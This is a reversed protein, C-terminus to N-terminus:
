NEAGSLRGFLKGAAAEGAPITAVVENLNGNPTVVFNVGNVVSSTEPVVALNGAWPDAQGLDNSWGVSAGASGRSAANLVSFTLVLGGANEGVEPLLGLANADPNAAGLLFALGNSVGDGNKDGTFPVGGSWTSYPSGGGVLDYTLTITGSWTGGVTPGGYANGLFLGTTSLDISGAAAWDTTTKTDVVTTGVGHDAAPPWNLNLALGGLPVAGNTIEVAFDGGPTGPTPDLLLSLDSAFNENDTAELKANTAISRLISGAPLAPLPLNTPFGPAAVYSGFTGGAIVTGTGLDIVLSGLAPAKTVTVTYANITDPETTTDTVTYTAPNGAAFTPSPPSGSTQNCTGSSLTFTPALTALDTGAPVTLSITKANQDIVGTSGPIGFSTIVAKGVPVLQFGSLPLRYGPASAASLILQGSGNAAVNEFLVFNNGQQWTTINATVSQDIPQAGVTTTPHTTSFTGKASETGGYIATSALWVNYLSDPPLGSITVTRSLGKDFDTLGHKLLVLGGSSRERCETFSTTVAVATATGDAALLNSGSVARFQNWTAGSGGAPGSLTAPDEFNGLTPIFQVFNVNFPLPVSPDTFSVSANQTIVVSDTVDTATFVETGIASSSVAFTAVGNVNTFVSSPTITPNATGAVLTVEREAAPFGAADKLSVTITSTTLGNAVVSAPSAAVTSIGIDAPGVFQVTGKQTIVVSDTTDTATFEAAGPTSSQVTFVVQGNADSTQATAPTITVGSGVTQVLTVSKGPVPINGTAKLTVTITSATTGDANVYSPAAAVTSLDADASSIFTVSATQTITLTDTTDTATFVETGATTSRVTFIAQGQADTTVVTAPNIVANGPSGALTVDKGPVPVGIADKLTVTVTSLTSGDAPVAAPAAAVTSADANVPGPPPLTIVDNFTTGIRIEDLANAERHMGFALTTLTNEDIAGSAALANTNFTAEDVTEGEKFAWTTVTDTAGFTLKVVIISDVTASQINRVPTRVNSTGNNLNWIAATVDLTSWAWGNGIGIGNGSSLGQTRDNFYGGDTLALGPRGNFALNPFHAVMSLWLVGGNTAAMAGASQALTRHSNIRGQNPGAANCWDSLGVYGGLTPVHSVVGDWNPQATNVTGGYLSAPNGRTDYAFAFDATAVTNPSDSWAGGWGLGGNKGALRGDVEHNVPTYNFPEYVLLEAHAAPLTGLVLALMCASPHPKKM